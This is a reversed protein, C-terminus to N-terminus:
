EPIKYKKGLLMFAEYEKQVFEGFEKPGQYGPIVGIKELRVNISPHSMVKRLTESLKEVVPQQTGAPTLLGHWFERSAQPHGLEAFSPIGPFEKLKSRGVSALLRVKKAELHPLIPTYAVSSIDVHGGL